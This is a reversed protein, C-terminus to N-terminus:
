TMGLQLSQKWSLRPFGLGQATPSSAFKLAKGRLDTPGVAAGADSAESAGTSERAVSSFWVLPKHDQTCAHHASSRLCHHLWPSTKAQKFATQLSRAPLLRNTGRGAWSLLNAFLHPRWPWSVDQSFCAFACLLSTDLLMYVGATLFANSCSRTESDCRANLVFAQTCWLNGSLSAHLRYLRKHYTRPHHRSVCAM